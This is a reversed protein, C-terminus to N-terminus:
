LSEYVGRIALILARRSDAPTNITSLQESIILILPHHARIGFDENIKMSLNYSLMHGISEEIEIPEDLEHVVLLIYFPLVYIPLNPRTKYAKLTLNTLISKNSIFQSLASLM